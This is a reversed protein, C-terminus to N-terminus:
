QNRKTPQWVNTHEGKVFKLFGELLAMNMTFFHSIFRLLVIHIHFKKLLFDIFLSAAMLLQIGLLVLYFINYSALLINTLFATIILFPGFWRLIKHSFFAFSVGKYPPWLLSAFHKLNQFNGVSIRVKRKYEIKWDNSVDEYVFAKLDTIAKKKKKLVSMTIFFDEVAFDPPIEPLLESRIAYCGGFAGIMCGWIKGEYYKMYVEGKVFLKEQVSIGDKNTEPNIINAGVIGIEPNEFHMILNDLTQRDFYVNADTLVLLDAKTEKSLINLQAPKGRRLDFFYAKILGPFEDQLKRIIDNTKDTSNDSGIILDFSGKYDTEFVSRIKKEIVDEENFVAM